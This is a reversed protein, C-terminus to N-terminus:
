KRLVRWTDPGVTGDPALGAKDQLRKVARTTNPGYVGDVGGPDFNRYGLLCQAEVVDWGPQSLLATSTTSYGAYLLGKRRKVACPYTKGPQYAFAGRTPAARSDSEWPEAILLGAILGALAVVTLAGILATRRTRRNGQDASGTDQESGPEAEPGPESELLDAAQPTGTERQWMEEAVERLALLRAPDAGAVRALEEVAQRPPLARGNLYREWSSRSYSTKAQLSALSLGSHDKLARLQIFLRRAREDLANPLEQWRPM